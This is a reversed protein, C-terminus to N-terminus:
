ESMPEVEGRNWIMELFLGGMYSRGIREGLGGLGRLFLCVKMFEKAESELGELADLDDQADGEGDEKKVVGEEQKDERKWEGQADKVEDREDGERKVRKADPSTATM